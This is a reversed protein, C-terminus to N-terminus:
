PFKKSNSHLLKVLLYDTEIQIVLKVILNQAEEVINVLIIVNGVISIRGMMM